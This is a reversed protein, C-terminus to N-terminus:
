SLGTREPLILTLRNTEAMIAAVTPTVADVILQHHLYPMSKKSCCDYWARNVVRSCLNGSQQPQKKPNEEIEAFPWDTCKQRTQKKKNVMPVIIV